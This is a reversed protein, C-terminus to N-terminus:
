MVSTRESATKRSTGTGSDGGACVWVWVWRWVCWWWCWGWPPPGPCWPGPPPCAYRPHGAPPEVASVTACSSCRSPSAARSCRCSYSMASRTARAPPDCEPSPNSRPLPVRLVHPFRLRAHTTTPTHFNPRINPLQTRNDTVAPQQSPKARMCFPVLSNCTGHRTRTRLLLSRAVRHGRSGASSCRVMAAGAWEACAVVLDTTVAMVGSCHVNGGLAQGAQSASERVEKRTRRTEVGCIM